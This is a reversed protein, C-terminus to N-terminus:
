KRGEELTLKVAESKRWGGDRGKEKLRYRPCWAVRSRGRLEDEEAIDGV